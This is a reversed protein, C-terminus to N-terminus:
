RSTKPAVVFRGYMLEDTTAGKTLDLSYKWAGARVYGVSTSDVSIRIGGTFVGGTEGRNLFIGGSGSVGVGSTTGYIAGTSGGHTVGSTSIDLYKISSETYPRVQLRATYGTLDVANNNDDYYEVHFNFTSYEQANIDYYASAM